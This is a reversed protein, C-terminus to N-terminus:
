KMKPINSCYKAVEERNIKGRTTKPIEKVKYWVKPAKYDSIYKCIWKHIDDSLLKTNEKIILATAVIEGALDDPMGFTCSEIIKPNRELILDIDEPTVKIGGTNIENRVRGTLVLNGIM